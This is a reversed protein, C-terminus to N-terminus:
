LFLARWDWAIAAARRDERGGCGAKRLFTIAARFGHVLKANSRLEEGGAELFISGISRGECYPSFSAAFLRDIASMPSPQRSIGGFSKLQGSRRSIRKLAVGYRGPAPCCFAKFIRSHSSSVATECSACCQGWFRRRSMLPCRHGHCDACYLMSKHSRRMEFFIM